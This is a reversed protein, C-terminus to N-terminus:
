LIYGFLASNTDSTTYTYTVIKSNDKHEESKLDKDQLHVMGNMVVKLLEARSEDSTSNADKTFKFDPPSYSTVLYSKDEEKSDKPWTVECSLVYEGKELNRQM